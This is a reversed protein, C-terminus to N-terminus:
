SSQPDLQPLSDVPLGLGQEVHAVKLVSQEAVVGALDEAVYM